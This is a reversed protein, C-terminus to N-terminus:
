VEKVRTQNPAWRGVLYLRWVNIVNGCHSTTNSIIIERPEVLIMECRYRLFGFLKDNRSWFRLDSRGLELKDRDGSSDARISNYIFHDELTQM